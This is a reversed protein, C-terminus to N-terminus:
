EIGRQKGVPAVIRERRTYEAPFALAVNVTCGRAVPVAIGGVFCLLANMASPGNKLDSGGAGSSESVRMVREAQRIGTRTMM